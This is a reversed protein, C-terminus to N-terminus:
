SAMRAGGTHVGPTCPKRMVLYEQSPAPLRPIENEVPGRARHDPVLDKQQAQM